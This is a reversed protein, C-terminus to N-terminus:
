NGFSANMEEASYIVLKPKGSLTIRKDSATYTAEDSYSVNEGRIIKVNGRAVIKEIKSGMESLTDGAAGKDQGSSAGFYVDMKDSYILTGDSDVKVNNNFVAINKAYDINLPGDCTIVTKNKAGAKAAPKEAPNINVEVEKELTVTNLDTQGSAGRGVTLMNEKKINVVEKTSVLQNKRDWDLSDTTLRAGSSTTIVVNQKLHVKGDQKNFDGSDATLNITEDEGYFNGIVDKLKIIDSFIDASKGSIDWAKKGKDGFGSLSFDAIQQDSEQPKLKEASVVGYILFVLAAIILIIGKRIM